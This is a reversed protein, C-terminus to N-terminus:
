RSEGSSKKLIIVLNEGQWRVQANAAKLTAGPFDLVREAPRSDIPTTGLAKEVDARATGPPLRFRVLRRGTDRLLPAPVKQSLEGETGFIITIPVQSLITREKDLVTVGFPTFSMSLKPSGLDSYDVIIGIGEGKEIEKLLSENRTRGELALVTKKEVLLAYGPEKRAKVIAEDMEAQSPKLVEEVLRTLSMGPAFVRAKWDPSLRDLMAGIAMGSFYLRMRLPATGYPDNNVLVEGNMHQAMMDILGELQSELNSYGAFGQAWAMAPGPKRRALVQFLRYEAYKALGESFEVGNEYELAQSSLGARREQRLALWRRAARWLAPNDRAGLAEALAAGEQAFGVNNAVSLVPYHLLLMENAGQDPAELDQFVHFAEHVVIALQSYPDTALDAFRLSQIKEAAPRADELLGFFRVRLNSLTDAVVLTRIGGIDRSTNQGDWEILTPGDKIFIRGYPFRVPGDYPVFGAPPHPHNILVDQEGPLYFLLPTATADWGPWISNKPAAILKWVEGAEAILLPDVKLAQRPATSKAQGTPVPIAALLFVLGFLRSFIRFSHNGEIM